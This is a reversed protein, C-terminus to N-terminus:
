AASLALLGIKNSEGDKEDLLITSVELTVLSMVAAQQSLPRSGMPIGICLVSLWSSPAMGPKCLGPKRGSKAVVRGNSCQCRSQCSIIIIITQLRHDVFLIVSIYKRHFVWQRLLKSLVWHELSRTSAR